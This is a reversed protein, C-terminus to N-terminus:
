SVLICLVDTSQAFFRLFVILKNESTCYYPPLFNIM